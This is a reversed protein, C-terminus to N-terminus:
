KCGPKSYKGKKQSGALKMKHEEKGVVIDSSLIDTLLQKNLQQKGKMKSMMKEKKKILRKEKLITKEQLKKLTEMKRKITGERLNYRNAHRQMEKNSAKKHTDKPKKHMSFSDNM